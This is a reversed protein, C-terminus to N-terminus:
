IANYQNASPNFKSLIGAALSQEHTLRFQCNGRRKLM